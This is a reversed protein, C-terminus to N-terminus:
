YGVRAAAARASIMARGNAAMKALLDNLQRAIPDGEALLRKLIRDIDEGPKGRPLCYSKALALAKETNAAVSDSLDSVSKYTVGTVQSAPRTPPAPPEADVQYAEPNPRRGDAYMKRATPDHELLYDYAKAVSIGRDVAYKTVYDDLRKQAKDRPNAERAAKAKALEEREHQEAFYDAQQKRMEARGAASRAYRHDEAMAAYSEYGSAKAIQERTMDTM